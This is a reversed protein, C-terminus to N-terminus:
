FVNPSFVKLFITNLFFQFRCVRVEHVGNYQRLLLSFMDRILQPNAVFDESMWRKVNNIIMWRFKEGGHQNETTDVQVVAPPVKVISTALKDVWSTDEDMPVLSQVAEAEDEATKLGNTSV